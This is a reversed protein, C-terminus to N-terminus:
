KGTNEANATRKQKYTTYITSPMFGEKKQITGLEQVTVDLANGFENAAETYRGLDIDIMRKM